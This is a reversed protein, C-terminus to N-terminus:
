EYNIVDYDRGFTCVLGVEAMVKAIERAYGENSFNNHCYYNYYEILPKVWNPQKEVSM